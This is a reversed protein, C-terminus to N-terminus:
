IRFWNDRRDIKIMARDDRSLTLEDIKSVGGDELMFPFLFLGQM